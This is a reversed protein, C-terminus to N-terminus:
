ITKQEGDGRRNSVGLCVPLGGGTRELSRYCYQGISIIRAVSTIKFKTTAICLVFFCTFRIMSKM